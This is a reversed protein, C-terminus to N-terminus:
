THIYTYNVSIQIKKKPKKYKIKISMYNQYLQFIIFNNIFYTKENKNNLFFQSIGPNKPIKPDLIIEFYGPM